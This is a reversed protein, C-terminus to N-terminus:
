LSIERWSLVAFYPHWMFSSFILYSTKYSIREYKYVSSHWIVKVLTIYSKSDASKNPISLSFNIHSCAMRFLMSVSFAAAIKNALSWCEASLNLSAEISKMTEFKSWTLLLWDKSYSALVSTSRTKSISFLLIQIGILKRCIYKTLKIIM